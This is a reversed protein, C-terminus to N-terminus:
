TQREWELRMLVFSGFDKYVEQGLRLCLAWSSPHFIFHSYLSSSGTNVWRSFLCQSLSMTLVSVLATDPQCKVVWVFFSLPNGLGPTLLPSFVFLDGTTLNLALPVDWGRGTAAAVCFSPASVFAHPYAQPPYCFYISGAGLAGLRPVEVAGYGIPGPTSLFSMCM